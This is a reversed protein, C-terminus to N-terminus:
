NKRRWSRCKRRIGSPSQAVRGAASLAVALLLGLFFIVSLDMATLLFEASFAQGFAAAVAYEGANLPRKGAMGAPHFLITPAPFIEWLELFTGRLSRTASACVSSRRSTESCGREAPICFGARSRRASGANRDLFGQVLGCNKQRDNGSIKQGAPHPIRFDRLDFGM